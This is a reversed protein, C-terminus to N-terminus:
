GERTLSANKCDEMVDRIHLLGARVQAETRTALENALMVSSFSGGTAACHGLLQAATTFPYPRADAEETGAPATGAPAATDTGTDTAPDADDRVIFGGGVSYFTATHLVAGADDSVTFTVANTHRPLITRPHLLIDEAGYALPM